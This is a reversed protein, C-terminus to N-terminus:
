SRTSRGCRTPSRATMATSSCCTARTTPRSPTAPSISKASMRSRSTPSIPSRRSYGHNTPPFSSTTSTSCCAAAPASRRARAIFETESMTSEAFCSMPRRTRWCSRGASRRSCRTSIIPSARWRRRAHLAAAASRQLLDHRADVLRSARLGAGARLARRAGQLARSAGQRAAAPRRDVHLRRAAVGSLRPRIRTCRGTRRAAPAWTTRPMSRSSATRGHRRRPDGASARAQLQDRRPRRDSLGSLPAVAGRLAAHHTTRMM